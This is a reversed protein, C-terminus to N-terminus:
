SRRPAPSLTMLGPGIERRVRDSEAADEAGPPLGPGVPAPLRGDLGAPARPRGRGARGAGHHAAGRARRVSFVRRATASSARCCPRAVHGIHFIIDCGRRAAAGAAAQVVPWDAWAEPGRRPSGSPGPLEGRPLAGRGAHRLRHAPDRPDFALPYLDPSALGAADVAPTGAPGNDGAM